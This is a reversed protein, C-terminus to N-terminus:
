LIKDIKEREKGSYDKNEIHTYSLRMLEKLIKYKKACNIKKVSFSM